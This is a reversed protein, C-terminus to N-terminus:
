RENDEPETYRENKYGSFCLLFEFTKEPAQEDGETKRFKGLRVQVIVPDYFLTRLVTNGEVKEKICVNKPKMKNFEAAFKFVDQDTCTNSIRTPRGIFVETKRLSGTVSVVNKTFTETLVNWSPKVFKTVHLSYLSDWSPFEVEFGDERILVYNPGTWNPVPKSVETKEVEKAMFIKKFINM